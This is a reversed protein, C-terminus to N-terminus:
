NSQQSVVGGAASHILVSKGPRLSVIDFLIIYAAVYNILITAADQYSLEDPIKYVYKAPVAVLEAWARYEPLAAVRDGVQFQISLYVNIFQDKFGLIVPSCISEVAKLPWLFLKPSSLSKSGRKEAIGTTQFHKPSSFELSSLCNRGKKSASIYTPRSGFTWRRGRSM